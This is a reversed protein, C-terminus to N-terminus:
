AEAEAEEEVEQADRMCTKMDYFVLGIRSDKKGTALVALGEAKPERVFFVMGACGADVVLQTLPASKMDTARTDGMAALQQGKAIMVANLSEPFNSAVVAEGAYLIAKDIDTSIDLMEKFAKDASEYLKTRREQAICPRPVPNDRM